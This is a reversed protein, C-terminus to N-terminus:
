FESRITAETLYVIARELSVINEKFHGLGTNCKSCLLGRVFRTIHCHDVRLRERKGNNEQSEPQLCIACLGNQNTFLENYRDLTIGYTYRFHRDLRLEPSVVKENLYRGRDRVKCRDKNKDRWAKSQKNNCIKCRKNLGDTATQDRHFSHRSKVTNCDKCLKTDSIFLNLKKM